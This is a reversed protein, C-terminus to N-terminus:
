LWKLIGKLQRNTQYYTAVNLKDLAEMFSKAKEELKEFQLEPLTLHDIGQSTVLFADSRSKAVNFVIIPGHEALAILESKSLGLLFREFGAKSRIASM